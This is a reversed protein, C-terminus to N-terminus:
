NVKQCFAFLKHLFLISYCFSCHNYRNLGLIIREVIDDLIEVFIDYSHNSIIGPIGMAQIPHKLLYGVIKENHLVKMLFVLM